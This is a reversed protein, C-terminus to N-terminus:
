EFIVRLHKSLSSQVGTNWGAHMLQSPSYFSNTSALKVCPIKVETGANALSDSRHRLQQFRQYEEQMQKLPRLKGEPEAVMEVDEEPIMIQNKSEEKM